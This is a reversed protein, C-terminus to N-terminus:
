GKIGYGNPQTTEIISYSATPRCLGDECTRAFHFISYVEKDNMTAELNGRQLSKTQKNEVHMFDYEALHSPRAGGSCVNQEPPNDSARCVQRFVVEHM